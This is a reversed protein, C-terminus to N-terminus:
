HAPALLPEELTPVMSQSPIFYKQSSKLTILVPEQFRSDFEDIYSPFPNIYLTKMPLNISPSFGTLQGPPPQNGRNTTALQRYDIHLNTERHPRCKSTHTEGLRVLAPKHPIKPLVLVTNKAQVVNDQLGAGRKGGKRVGDVAKEMMMDCFYNLADMYTATEVVALDPPKDFTVTISRRRDEGPVRPIFETGEPLTTVTEQDESIGEGGGVSKRLISKNGAGRKKGESRSLKGHINQGKKMREITDTLHLKYSTMWRDLWQQAMKRLDAKRDDEEVNWIDWSDLEKQIHKHPDQLGSAALSEVITLRVEKDGDLFQVMLETIYEKDYLGFKTMAKLSSLIFSKQSSVMCTPPEKSHNLIAVLTKDIAAVTSESMDEQTFLMTLADTITTKMPYEALRLVRSLMTAFNEPTWPKPISEMSPFFKEFWPTGNFQTIFDPVPTDARPPTPTRAKPPPAARARKMPTSPPTKEVVQPPPTPDKVPSPPLPKKVVPPPLPKFERKPLPATPRKVEAPSPMPKDFDFERPSRPTTTITSDDDDAPPKAMAGQLKSLLSTPERSTIPPTADKDIVHVTDKRSFTVEKADKPRIPPPSPTPPESIIPSERISEEDEKSGYDFYMPEPTVEREEEVEEPPPSEYHTGSIEALQRATLAPPQWREEKKPPPPPPPPWLIKVMVSNPVFGTASVIPYAPQLPTSTPERSIPPLSASHVSSVKSPERSFHVVKEKKPPPSEAQVEPTAAKTEPTEPKKQLIPPPLEAPAVPPQEEAPVPKVEAKAKVMSAERSMRASVSRSAPPFFGSPEKEPKYPEEVKEIPGKLIAKIKDEPFMEDEPIALRPRDYYMKMYNKFGDEKTEPTKRPKRKAPLQADRIKILEADRAAIEAFAAQKSRLERTIEEEEEKTLIDEFHDYKFASHSKKLRTFERKSLKKVRKEDLEVIPEPKPDVFKMSVMKFLYTKPLYVQFPVRYLHPGIGVLLDGRSSCFGVSYPMTKLKLHRILNNQEDWIRISGDLSSSAYLKMRQCSTLGTITDIHDDDPKHEFLDTEKKPMSFIRDKLNYIVISYTATSHDQFAVCLNTKLMTMHVPTHKCYFLLLPALAEQAYPYLRWVKIINDKGASILQDEKSNAIMSLVGKVGHADIQFEVDGTEFNFVCIYGDKRGGLLITRNNSVPEESDTAQNISKTALGRRFAAWADSKFDPVYEYILLYNCAERPNSCKWVAEVQAPNVDTRCKYIDGNGVVTFLKEEAVAYAADVIGVSPDLLLTTMVDGSPPTILRISCDRSVVLSRIPYFPHTTQKISNVRQGIATFINYLHQIKWLDVQKNAYTFFVDYNLEAVLGDVATELTARDMEDCSDLNWVRITCDYSASIVAPGEPYITLINVCQTHGVFVMKLFWEGDWVKITGDLAGTILYKLPNFYTLATILREHLDRKHILEKGEFVNYCVIGTNKSLYCKQMRSATEELVIHRFTKDDNYRIKTMKRPILHRAGYRFAWCVMFGPGITIFEQTSQNYTALNIKCPVRAQSIIEFESNMLFLEDQESIWGVYQKTHKCHVLNDIPEEPIYSEKKRGDELFVRINKGDTTVYEKTDAIYLVSKIVGPHNMKRMHHIGHSIVRDKNDAQTVAVITRRISNRLISWHALAKNKEEEKKRDLLIKMQKSMPEDEDLSISGKKSSRKSSDSLMRMLEM